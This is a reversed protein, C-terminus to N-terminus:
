VSKPCEEDINDNKLVTNCHKCYTLDPMGFASEDNVWQHKVKKEANFKNIQEWLIEEVLQNLTIDREHALCMLRYMEGEDLDIPMSVRTDYPKGEKIALSKQIWEDDVELDIFEVGDWAVSDENSANKRFFSRFEPNILRYARSYKYDCAEVHYVQQTDVDFVILFSWGTHSGNWASLCYCNANPGFNSTHYRDGETIRYDVIEMWEKLTIM